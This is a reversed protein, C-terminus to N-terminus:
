SVRQCWFNYMGLFTDPNDQEFNHWKNLDFLDAGDQYTKQFERIIEEGGFGCFKLQLGDICDAIQPITFRHEKVHFLLDRISSLTYFDGHKSLHSLNNKPSNLLRERYEKIEDSSLGIQNKEETRESSRRSITSLQAM